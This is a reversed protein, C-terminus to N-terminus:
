ISREYESYIHEAWCNHYASGVHHNDRASISGEVNPYKIEYESIFEKIKNFDLPYFTKFNKFYENNKENWSFSFLKINNQDCYQELMYYYHYAILSLIENDEVISRFINNSYKDYAFFRELNQINFFIIDPNNFNKFYKFSNIISIYISDGPVGLSFYGDVKNNLKIKEYVLKSWVEDIFLGTGWTYSCGLFLIHKDSHNKQFNDSRFGYTNIEDQFVEKHNNKKREDWDNKNLPIGSIPLDGYLVEKDLSKPFVMEQKINLM